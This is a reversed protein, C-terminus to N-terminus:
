KTGGGGTALAALRQVMLATNTVDAAAQGWIKTASKTLKEADWTDEGALMRWVNVSASTYTDTSKKALETVVKGLTELDKADEIPNPM